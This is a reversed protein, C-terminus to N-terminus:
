SFPPYIKVKQNLKLYNNVWWYLFTHHLAALWECGYTLSQLCQEKLATQFMEHVKYHSLFCVKFPLKQQYSKFLEFYDRMLVNRKFCSTKRKWQPKGVVQSLLSDAITQCMFATKIVNSCFQGLKIRRGWPQQLPTGMEMQTTDPKGGRKSTM